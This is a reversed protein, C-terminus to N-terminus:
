LVAEAAQRWCGVGGSCMVLPVRWWRLMLRAGSKGSGEQLSCRKECWGGWVLVRLRCGAGLVGAERLRDFVPASSAFSLVLVELSLDHAEKDDEDVEGAERLEASQEAEERSDDQM